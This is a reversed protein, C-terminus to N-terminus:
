NQKKHNIPLLCKEILIQTNRVRNNDWLLCCCFLGKLKGAQDLGWVGGEVGTQDHGLGQCAWSMLSHKDWRVGSQREATCGADTKWSGVPYPGYEYLLAQQRARQWESTPRGRRLNWIRRKFDRLHSPSLLSPTLTGSYVTWDFFFVNGRKLTRSKVRGWFWSKILCSHQFKWTTNAKFLIQGIESLILLSLIIYYHLAAWETPSSSAQHVAPDDREARTNNM